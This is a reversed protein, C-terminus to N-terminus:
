HMYNTKNCLFKKYHITVHVYPVIKYAPHYTKYSQVYFIFSRALFSYNDCVSDALSIYVCKLLHYRHITKSTSYTTHLITNEWCIDSSAHSYSWTVYSTHYHFFTTPVRNFNSSRFDMKFDYILNSVWAEVSTSSWRCKWVQYVVKFHVKTEWVDVTSRGDEKVRMRWVDCSRVTM